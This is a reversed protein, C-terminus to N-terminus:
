LDVYNGFFLEHNHEESPSPTMYMMVYIKTVLGIFSRFLPDDNLSSKVLREAIYKENKELFDNVLNQCHDRSFNGGAYKELLLCMNNLFLSILEMQHHVDEDTPLLDQLKKVVDEM